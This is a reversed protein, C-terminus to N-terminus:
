RHEVVDGGYSTYPDLAKEFAQSIRGFTLTFAFRGGGIVGHLHRMAVM